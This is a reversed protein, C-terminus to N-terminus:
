SNKKDISLQLPMIQELEQQEQNPTVTYNPFRIAYKNNFIWFKPLIANDLILAILFRGSASGYQLCIEIM